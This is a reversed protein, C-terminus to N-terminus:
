PCSPFLSVAAMQIGPDYGLTITRIISDHDGRLALQTEKGQTFEWNYYRVKSQPKVNDLALNALHDAGQNDERGVHRIHIKVGFQNKMSTILRDLLRLEYYHAAREGNAKRGDNKAWTHIWTNMSNVLYTSDTLIWADDITKKLIAVIYIHGVAQALAQIEARTSTHPASPPLVGYRNLISDPGYYIGWSARSNHTGNGRCAGDVYVGLTRERAKFRSPSASTGPLLDCARFYRDYYVFNPLTGSAM